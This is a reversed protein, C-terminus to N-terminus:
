FRFRLTAQFVRMSNPNQLLGFQATTVSTNYQTYNVHNLINTADFRLDASRREGLRFTRGMSAGMTFTTPGTIIDRGANGYEGTPPTAFAAPNLAGDVYLPQGTYEGRLPGTIGTNGLQRATYTPTEFPGTSVLVTTTILWGKIAQGRWGNLLAGGHLGQGTNYTMNFNVSQRRVLSSNAREADLDLWNQATLGGGGRGGAGSEDISHALTYILNASFGARFRRQLQTAVSELNSNGGSTVYYFNSPCAAVGGVYCGYTAGPPASNPVFQQTQHTGKDASYTVTAVLGAKL